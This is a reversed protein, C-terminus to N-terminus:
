PNVETRQLFVVSEVHGTQPFFDAARWQRISYQQNQILPQLDRALTAAHCSIYVIQQPQLQQLAKLVEGDCGKRPPDLIVQDVDQLLPLIAEVKGPHFDLNDLQNAASNQEARAVAAAHSEIGIVRRVQPAVLLSLTGIGCYADVVTATGQLHMEEVIWTFFHEAQETYVQFFSTSDLTLTLDAFIEQLTAVGAIVETKPGFIANTRAANVNVCVGVLDPYRQLWAQAWNELGPLNAERVVLTILVQGTRRGIRLGLHRLSGTHTHEDYVPWGTRQLDQKIEQLYVDLRQDQVPCQNLNILHHSGRQYYGMVLRGDPRTQIPYTVKNRYHLVADAGMIPLPPPLGLKGIRQLADQVAEQKAQLQKAYAVQQWQCGGCKDAVICAPQIRHASPTQIAVPVAQAYSPKVKVLKVELEDGPVAQPVFVVRGQIHGVGDGESTLATIQLPVISGPQWVSSLPVLFKSQKLKPCCNSM